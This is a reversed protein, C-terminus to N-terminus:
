EDRSASHSLRSRRPDFGRQLELRRGEAEDGGGTGPHGPLAVGEGTALRGDLRAAAVGRDDGVLVRVRLPNATGSLDVGAAEVAILGDTIALRTIGPPDDEFLCLSASCVISGAPLTSADTGFAIAVDENEPDIGDSSAGLEFAAVFDWRDEGAAEYGARARVIEFRGMATPPRFGVTLTPRLDAAPNERSDLRKAGGPLSETGIVIWGHNGDPDDLWSQADAVMAPTSGWAYFGTGGVSSSASPDDVFDGGESSWDEGPFFRHLWTADGDMAATGKGEPGPADSDGEGWAALVRHITAPLGGSISRSVNMRLTVSTITSGPPIEASLDFVLLARRVKGELTTGIFLHDGAGNSLAGDPDEYLTNDRVPSLVATDALATTASALLLFAAIAPAVTRMTM